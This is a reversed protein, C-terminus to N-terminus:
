TFKEFSFSFEPTLILHPFFIHILSRPAWRQNHTGGWQQGEGIACVPTSGGSHLPGEGMACMIGGSLHGAVWIGM